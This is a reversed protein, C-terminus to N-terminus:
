NGIGSEFSQMWNISDGNDSGGDSGIYKYTFFLKSGAAAVAPLTISFPAFDDRMLRGPVVFAVPKSLVKGNADQVSAWVEVGEM